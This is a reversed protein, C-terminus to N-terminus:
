DTTPIHTFLENEYRNRYITNSQIIIKKPSIRKILENIGDDFIAAQKDTRCCVNSVAVISTKKIGEFCFSYSDKTTWSVTPVVNIDAKQWIYGVMRSRYVNWMLMPTPMGLYLSYDPSLVCNAKAMTPVYKQPRRWFRELVYDETFTSVLSGENIKTYDNCVVVNNFNVADCFLLPYDSDFDIHETLLTDWAGSKTKWNHSSKTQM